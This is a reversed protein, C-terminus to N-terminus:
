RHKSPSIQNNLLEKLESVTLWPKKRHIMRHCNSCLISLDSLSTERPNDDESLPTNHHCEIFDSGHEGYSEEFDFGCAECSLKQNKSAMFTKKRRVIEPDRERIKHLAYKLQGESSTDSVEEFTSDFNNLHSTGVQANTCDFEFKLCSKSLNRNAGPREKVETFSIPKGYGLFIFEPLNNWRGFCVPELFGGILRQMLPQSAKSGNNSYWILRRNKSDFTDPFVHKYGFSAFIFLFNGVRQYPFRTFRNGADLGSEEVIEKIKIRSYNGDVTFKTSIMSSKRINPM